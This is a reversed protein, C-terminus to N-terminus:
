WREFLRSTRWLISIIKWSILHFCFFVWCEHICLLVNTHDWESYLLHDRYSLHVLTYSGFNAQELKCTGRVRILLPSKIWSPQWERLSHGWLWYESTRDASWDIYADDKIQVQTKRSKNKEFQLPFTVFKFPVLLYNKIWTYEQSDTIIWSPMIHLFWTRNILPLKRRPM